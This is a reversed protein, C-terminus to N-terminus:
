GDTEEQSLKKIYLPSYIPGEKTLTSQFLTIENIQSSIKKFNENIKDIFDYLGKKNFVTKIRAGTLHIIFKKNDFTIRNKKLCNRLNKTLNALEESFGNLFFVTPSSNREFFSFKDFYVTIPNSKIADLCNTIKNVYTKQQSGLFALTVHLNNIAVPKIKAYDKISNTVKEVLSNVKNDFTVAIFLRLNENM